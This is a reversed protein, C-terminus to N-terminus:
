ELSEESEDSDDHHDDDTTSWILPGIYIWSIASNNERIRSHNKQAV